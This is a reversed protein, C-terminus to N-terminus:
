PCIISTSAFAGTDNITVRWCNGNPSKMIVGSGITDIYVDGSTVQLKSKAANQGGGISVNGNPTITLQNSGSGMAFPIADNASVNTGIAVSNEATATSHMGIAISANGTANSHHGQAFANGGSAHAMYGLATSHSGTAQSLGGIAVSGAAEEIEGKAMASWGIAVSGNQSSASDGIAVSGQYSGYGDSHSSSAQNGIAILSAFEGIADETASGGIAIANKANKSVKGGIMALSHPAEASSESGIAISNYADELTHGGMMALSYKGEAYAEGGIAIASDGSTAVKGSSLAMSYPGSAYSGSSQSQGSSIAIASEANATSLVGIAVAGNGKAATYAGIAIAGMGDVGNEGIYNGGSVGSTLSMDINLGHNNSEIKYESEGILRWSDYYRNNPEINNKIRELGSPELRLWSKHSGEINFRYYGPYVINATTADADTVAQTVFVLLGNNENTLNVTMAKLQDGTLQPTLVGEPQSGDTIKAKIDLTANPSETNIGVKGEQAYAIGISLLGVLTLLKKM